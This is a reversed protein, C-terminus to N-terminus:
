GRPNSVYVQVATAGTQAVYKLAGKALGGAALAHGGLPAARRPDPM